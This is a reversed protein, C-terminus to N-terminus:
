KRFKISFASVLSRSLGEVLIEEKADGLNILRRHEEFWCHLWEHIVTEEKDIGKLERTLYVIKNERDTLGDCLANRYRLGWKYAVQWVTSGTITFTKPIRM